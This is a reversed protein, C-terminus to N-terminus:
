KSREKLMADSRYKRQYENYRIVNKEKWKTVSLNSCKKCWSKIKKGGSRSNDASFDDLSKISKCHPCFKHDKPMDRYSDDPMAAHRVNCSLCVFGYEGNRYHQLTVVTSHGEKALWNMQIGCDGCKNEIHSLKELIERSPVTKGHRKASSRMQGFRYHKSCLHQHGQVHKAEIKCISCVNAGGTKDISM